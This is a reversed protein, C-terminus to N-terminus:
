GQNDILRELLLAFMLVFIIFKLTAGVYIDWMTEKIEQQFNLQALNLTTLLRYSLILGITIKSDIIVWLHLVTIRSLQLLGLMLGDSDFLVSIHLLLLLQLPLFHTYRKCGVLTELTTTQRCDWLATHYIAALAHLLCRWWERCCRRQSPSHLAAQM